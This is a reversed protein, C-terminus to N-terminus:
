KLYNLKINELLKLTKDKLTKKNGSTSINLEGEPTTETDYVSILIADSKLLEKFKKVDEKNNVIGVYMGSPRRYFDNYVFYTASWGPSGYQNALKETYMLSDSPLPVLKGTHLNVPIMKEIKSSLKRIESDGFIGNPPNPAIEKLISLYIDGIATAAKLEDIQNLVKYSSDPNGNIM